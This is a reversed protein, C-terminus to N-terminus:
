VAKSLLQQISSALQKLKVPKTLYDNAGADLCRDRDGTMALATLAIMPVEGLGPLRRIQRMAELGNIVPMQIDMLILDPQHTTALDIAVQGHKPLM